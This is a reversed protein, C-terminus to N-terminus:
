SKSYDVLWHLGAVDTFINLFEYSLYRAPPISTQAVLQRDMLRCTCTDAQCDSRGLTLEGSWSAGSAV